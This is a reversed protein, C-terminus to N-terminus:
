FGTVNLALLQDIFRSLHAQHEPSIAAIRAGLHPSAAHTVIITCHIPAAPTLHFELQWQDGPVASCDAEILMGKDTLDLVECPIAETGRILQGTRKISLRFLERKQEM